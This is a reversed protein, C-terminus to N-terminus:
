PSRATNSGSGFTGTTSSNSTGPMWSWRIRPVITAPEVGVTGGANRVVIDDDWTSYVSHALDGITSQGWILEYDPPVAGPEGPLEELGRDPPFGIETPTFIGEEGDGFSNSNYTATAGSRTFYEQSPNFVTMVLDADGSCVNLILQV